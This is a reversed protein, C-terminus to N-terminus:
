AALPSSPFKCFLKSKVNPIGLPTAAPKASSILTSTFVRAGPEFAVACTYTISLGSLAFCNLNM